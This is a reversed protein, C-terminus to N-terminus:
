VASLAVPTHCLFSQWALLVECGPQHSSKLAVALRGAAAEITKTHQDDMECEGSQQQWQRLQRSFQRVPRLLAYQQLWQQLSRDYQAIIQQVVPVQQQRLSLTHQLAAVLTDVNAYRSGLSAQLSPAINAPVGADIVWRPLHDIPIGDPLLPADASTALLVADYHPLRAPWQDFSICHAGHQQALQVAKSLTRNTVTITADPMQCRLAQLLRSGFKGAGVLLVRARSAGPQAQLWAVAAYAMSVTGSSFGTSSRVQKAAQVAHHLVRDMVPGVLGYQRSLAVASRLQAQIDYDGLLQSHLGAAVGFLHRWAAAGQRAYGYQQLTATDGGSYKCLLAVLGAPEDTFAYLETRNCTSLALLSVFGRARGAALLAHTAEPALAFQGRCAADATHHSIGVLWFRDSIHAATLQM